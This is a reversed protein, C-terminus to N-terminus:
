AIFNRSAKRQKSKRNKKVIKLANEKKEMSEELSEFKEGKLKTLHNWYTSIMEKGSEKEREKSMMIQMLRKRRMTSIVLSFPMDKTIEYDKLKGDSLDGFNILKILLSCNLINM